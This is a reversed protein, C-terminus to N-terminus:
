AWLLFLLLSQGASMIGSLGTTTTGGEFSPPAVKDDSSFSPGRFQLSTDISAHIGFFVFSPELSAASKLKPAAWISSGRPRASSASIISFVDLSGDVRSRFEGFKSGDFNRRAAWPSADKARRWDPRWWRRCRRPLWSLRMWAMTRSFRSPNRRVASSTSLSEVTNSFTKVLPGRPPLFSSEVLFCCLEMAKRSLSTSARWAARSRRKAGSRAERSWRAAISWAAWRRM